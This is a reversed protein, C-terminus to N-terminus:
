QIEVKVFARAPHPPKLIRIIRLAIGATVYNGTPDGM